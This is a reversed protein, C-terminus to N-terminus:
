RRLFEEVEFGVRRKAKDWNEMEKAQQAGTLTKGAGKADEGAAMNLGALGTKVIVARSDQLRIEVGTGGSHSQSSTVSSVRDRGVGSNGHAGGVVGPHNGQIPTQKVVDVGEAPEEDAGRIIITIDPGISGRWLTAFWQWHAPPSFGDNIPMSISNADVTTLQFHPVIAIPIAESPNTCSTTTAPPQASAPRPVSSAPLPPPVRSLTHSNSVAPPPPTSPPPTDPPPPIRKSNLPRPFTLPAQIARTDPGTTLEKNAWLGPTSQSRGKHGVSNVFPSNISMDAAKSITKPSIASDLQDIRSEQVASSSHSAVGAQLIRESPMPPQPHDEAETMPHDEDQHDIMIPSSQSGPGPRSTIYEVMDKNIKHWQSMVDLYADPTMGRKKGASPIAKAGRMMSYPDPGGFIRVAFKGEKELQEALSNTMNDVSAADMGEVAIIAGRIQPRPSALGPAPLPGSIQSLVKIKNLVPISMIMAEVGSSQSQTSPAKVPTQTVMTEIPPLAVNSRNKQHHPPPRIPQLQPPRPYAARPPSVMQPKAVQVHQIPIQQPHQLIEQRAYVGSSTPSHAYSYSAEPYVERAPLYLGNGNFRRRKADQSEASPPTPLTQSPPPVAYVLRPDVRQFTVHEPSLAPQGHIRSGPPAASVVYGRKAPVTVAMTPRTTSAPPTYVPAPNSYYNMPKGGCKSCSEQAEASSPGSLSSQNSVRGNRRPHYRYGPYQQQHRAKEEEALLNWEEKAEASLGRWQEGIIKSVEPNPIGPNQAIISAQQHQRFLIFSNRPRPIKPSAPCLCINERSNSGKRVAAPHPQTEM